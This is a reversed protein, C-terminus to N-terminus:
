GEIREFQGPYLRQIEAVDLRNIYLNKGPTYEYRTKSPFANGLGFPSTNHGTYRFPISNAMEDAEGLKEKIITMLKAVQADFSFNARVFQTGADAIREIREHQNTKDDRNLFITLKENLDNLSVWELYHETARLGTLEDLGDVHQQLVVGGCSALAQFLRNSVFGRSTFGNDSIIVKARRYLLTSTSFNYLTSHRDGPQEVLGGFRRVVDAIAHREPSRLSALYVVPYTTGDAFPNERGLERFYNEVNTELDGEPEEYGIQWYAWKIRHSDYMPVVDLNTILQLDIQYLLPILEPSYLGGPAQDGNWNIITAGTRQKLESLMDATVPLHAQLQTLIVDPKFSEAIEILHARLRKPDDALYDFERVIHNQGYKNKARTLADRLGHKGHVPHKQIPWGPEYIPLYLFRAARKDQQPLQPESPVIIGGHSWDYQQTFFVSDDSALQKEWNIQRLEDKAIHDEVKCEPVADVTYGYSWIQASLSNDGGYTRAGEMENHEGLWWNLRDGLWKRFLGVQAYALPARRTGDIIGGISNVKYEDRSFGAMPRNDAFAVAGCKPTSELHVIAPLVSDAFFTIDDNSLLIYKGQAAHAGRTFASIAGLLAGDEILRVDTQDKAWEITGDTSGGDVLVIEYETNPLLNDRFSQVMAKLLELRNYTGSVLSILPTM